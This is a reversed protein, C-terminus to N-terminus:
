TQPIVLTRKKSVQELGPASDSCVCLSSVLLFFSGTPSLRRTNVSTGRGDTEPPDQHAHRHPHAIKSFLKSFLKGHAKKSARHRTSSSTQAEHQPGGM